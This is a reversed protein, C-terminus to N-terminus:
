FWTWFSALVWGGLQIFSVWCCPRIVLGEGQCARWVSLCCVLCVKSYVFWLRSLLGSAVTNLLIFEESCLHKVSLSFIVGTLSLFYVAHLSVRQVCWGSAIWLAINDQIIQSILIWVKPQELSSCCGALLRLDRCLLKFILHKAILSVELQAYSNCLQIWWCYLAQLLGLKPRM